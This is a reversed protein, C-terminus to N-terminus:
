IVGGQEGPGGVLLRQESAITDRVFLDGNVGSVLKGNTAPGYPPPLRRQSGVYAALAAALALALLAVLLLQRIPLPPLAAPRHRATDVPIWRELVSWLPRQRTRATVTVLDDPYDPRAPAAIEDLAGTVRADLVQLRDFATM